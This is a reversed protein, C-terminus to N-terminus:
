TEMTSVGRSAFKLDDWAVAVGKLALQEEVVDLNGFLM